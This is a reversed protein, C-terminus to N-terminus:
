HFKIHPIKKRLVSIFFSIFVWRFVLSTLTSNKFVSKQSDISAWSKELVEQKFVGRRFFFTPFLNSPHISPFVYPRILLHYILVFFCLDLSLTFFVSTTTSLSSIKWRNSSLKDDKSESKMTGPTFCDCFFGIFQSASWPENLLLIVDM